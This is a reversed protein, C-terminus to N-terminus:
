VKYEFKRVNKADFAQPNKGFRLLEDRFHELESNVQYRRHVMRQAREKIGGKWWDAKGRLWPWGHKMRQKGMREIMDRYHLYVIYFIRIKDPNQPNRGCQKRVLGAQLKEYYEQCEPPLRDWGVAQIVHDYDEIPLYHRSRVNERLRSITANKQKTAFGNPSRRNEM